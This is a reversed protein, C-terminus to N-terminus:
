WVRALEGGGEALVVDFSVIIVLGGRNESSVDVSGGGAGLPRSRNREYAGGPSGGFYARLPGTEKGVGEGTETGKGV